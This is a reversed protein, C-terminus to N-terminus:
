LLPCQLTLAQLAFQSSSPSIRKLSKPRWELGWQFIKIFSNVSDSKLKLFIIRAEHQLIILCPSAPSQPPKRPWLHHYGPILYHCYLHICKLGIQFYLRNIKTILYTYPTFLQVVNFLNLTEPKFVPHISYLHSLSWLHLLCLPNLFPSPLETPTPKPKLKIGLM